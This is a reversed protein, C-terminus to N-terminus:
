HDRSVARRTVSGLVNRDHIRTRTPVRTRNTVRPTPVEERHGQLTNMSATLLFWFSSVRNINWYMKQHNRMNVCALLLDYGVTDLSAVLMQTCYHSESVNIFILSRRFVHTYTHTHTPHSPPEAAPPPLAIFPNVAATSDRWGAPRGGYRRKGPYIYVYIYTYTAPRRARYVGPAAQRTSDRM